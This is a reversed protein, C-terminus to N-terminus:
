FNHKHLECKSRSVAYLLSALTLFFSTWASIGFFDNAQQEAVLYLANKVVAALCFFQQM